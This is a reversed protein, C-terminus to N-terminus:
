PRRFSPLKPVKLSPMKKQPPVKPVNNKPLNNIMDRGATPVNSKHPPPSPPKPMNAIDAPPTQADPERAFPMEKNPSGPNDIAGQEKAPAPANDTGGGVKKGIWAAMGGQDPNPVDVEVTSVGDGNKNLEQFTQKSSVKPTNSAQKVGGKDKLTNPGNAMDKNMGDQIQGTESAKPQSNTQTTSPTASSLDHTSNNSMDRGLTNNKTSAQKLFSQPDGFISM